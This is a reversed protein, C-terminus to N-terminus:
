CGNLQYPQALELQSTLNLNFRPVTFNALAKQGDAKVGLEIYPFWFQGIM